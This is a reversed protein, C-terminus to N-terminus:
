ASYAGGGSRRATTAHVHTARVPSAPAGLGTTGVRAGVDDHDAVRRRVDGSRGRRVCRTCSGAAVVTTPM